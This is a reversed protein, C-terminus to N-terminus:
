RRSVTAVVKFALARALVEQFRPAAMADGFAATAHKRLAPDEARVVFHFTKAPVGVTSLQRTVAFEAKRFALPLEDGIILAADCAGIELKNAAAAIDQTAVVKVKMPAGFQRGLGSSLSTGFTDIVTKDDVGTKGAHIVLLQFDSSAKVSVTEFASASAVGIALFAMVSALTTNM